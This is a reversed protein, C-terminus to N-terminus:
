ILQWLLFLLRHILSYIIVFILCNPYKNQLNDAIQKVQSADELALQGVSIGDFLSLVNYKDM